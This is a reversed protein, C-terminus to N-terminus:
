SRDTKAQGKTGKAKDEGLDERRAQNREDNAQDADKHADQPAAPDQAPAKDVDGEILLNQQRLDYATRDDVTLVRDPELTTRVDPM